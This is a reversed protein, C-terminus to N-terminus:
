KDNKLMQFLYDVFKIDLKNLVYLKDILEAILNIIGEFYMSENKKILTRMDKMLANHEKMLAELETLDNVVKNKPHM